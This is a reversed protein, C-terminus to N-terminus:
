QKGNMVVNELGGYKKNSNPMVMNAMLDGNRTPHWEKALNPNAYQLSRNSNMVIEIHKEKCEKQKSMWLIKREM